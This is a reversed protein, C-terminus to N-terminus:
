AIFLFAQARIPRKAQRIGLRFLAQLLVYILVPPLVSLPESARIGWSAYGSLVLCLIGASQVYLHAEEAPLDPPWKKTM